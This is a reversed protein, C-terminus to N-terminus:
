CGRCPMPRVTRRHSSVRPRPTVKVLTGNSAPFFVNGGYGPQIASGQTMQPVRASRALERGTAADRYVVREQKNQGPVQAGPIETGVWVRHAKPGILTAWETTTQNKKWVTTIGSPTVKFAAVKRALTEVGYILRNQPDAELSMGAWSVAPEGNAATAFAKSLLPPVPDNVYPQLYFVKSSDSQDIAFMTLAGTAPVSNTAGLIWNNMVILSGGTM